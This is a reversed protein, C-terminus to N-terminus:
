RECRQILAGGLVADVSEHLFQWSPHTSSGLDDSAVPIEMQKSSGLSKWPRQLCAPSSGSHEEASAKGFLSASTGCHDVIVQGEASRIDM